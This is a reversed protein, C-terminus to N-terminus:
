RPLRGIESLMGKVECSTLECVCYGIRVKMRHYINITTSSKPGSKVGFAEIIDHFKPSLTEIDRLDNLQRVKLLGFPSAELVFLRKERSCCCAETM